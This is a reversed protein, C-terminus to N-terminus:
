RGASVPSVAPSAGRGPGRQGRLRGLAALVEASTIELLGPDTGAAHPDGPRGHWLAEHPGTPPPGWLSPPTPGYLVVSPTGVAFAVHAVGTDCCVLTSAAAVTAVLQGPDTAGALLQADGLGAADTISRALEVENPGGTVVVRHGSAVEARAIQAWRSVPWRRAASSAGPHILTAGRAM